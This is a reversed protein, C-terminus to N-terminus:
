SDRKGWPRLIREPPRPPPPSLLLDESFYLAHGVFKLEYRGVKIARAVGRNRVSNSSHAGMLFSM